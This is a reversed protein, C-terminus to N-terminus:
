KPASPQVAEFQAALKQAEEIQAPKLVQLFQPLRQKADDNGKKAALLAWKYAQVFDKAVGQGFVYCRSLCSQANANNQYAAKRFWKAAEWENTEVGMGTMFHLGLLTQADPDNQEAAKRYWSLAEAVNTEVGLGNDYYLGVKGQAGPVNQEAAKHFWQFAQQNDKPVGEGSAYLLGLTYQAAALNQDAAKRIWKAGERQDVAVGFEGNHLIGGLEFQAQADGHEAKGQWAALAPPIPSQGPCGLIQRLTVTTDYEHNQRKLTLKFTSGPPAEWFHPHVIERETPWKTVDVQDVKLLIDGDRIGALDAPSGEAVHAVLANHTDDGPVFLAGLRNQPYVPPIDGRPRAYVVGNTWDSVFDLRRLAYLGLTAAHDLGPPLLRPDAEHVPVNTLVLSGIAIHDAWVEKMIIVGTGVGIMTAPQQGRTAMWKAWLARNLAVGGEYGTDVLIIRHQADVGGSDFALLSLDTRLKFKPWALAEAPVESGIRLGNIADFAIVNRRFLTWTMVGDASTFGRPFDLIVFQTEASVPGPQADKWQFRCSETMENTIRDPVPSPLLKLKLREAVSRRLAPFDAGTDFLLHVRQERITLDIWIGDEAFLTWTFYLWGLLLSLNKVHQVLCSARTRLSSGSRPPHCPSM